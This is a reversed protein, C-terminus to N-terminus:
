TAEYSKPKNRRRPGWPTQVIQTGDEMDAITKAQFDVVVSKHGGDQGVIMYNTGGSVSSPVVKKSVLQTKLELAFPANGTGSNCAVLEIAIQSKLGAKSLLAALESASYGGLSSTSGHGLIFLTDGAVLDGIADVGTSVLVTKRGTTELRALNRDVAANGENLRLILETM